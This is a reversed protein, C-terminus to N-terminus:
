VGAALKVPASVNLYTSFLAPPQVLIAVTVIFTACAGLMIFDNPCDLMRSPPVVLRVKLMVFGLEVCPKVPMANVSVNGAPIVTAVEPGVAAQPPPMTEVVDGFRILKLPPVSAALPLQENLTVTVPEVVPTHLLVVPTILEVSLPAPAVDFVAVNVTTPGGDIDFPNSAAVIGSLPVLTNVNVTVLGFVVVANVPTANVSVNGEPNVTGLPVELTHPPPVNVVVAGSVIVSVPPAIPALPLQRIVTVTVPAVAPTFFLTLPFTDAALPPVPLVADADIVTTAGGDILLDNLGVLMGKFPVEVSVNVIVFGFVVTPSVPSL